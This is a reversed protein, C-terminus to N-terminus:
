LVGLCTFGAWEQLPHGQDILERQVHAVAQASRVGALYQDYFRSTFEAAARDLVRWLNGIVTNAGAILCTTPLDVQEEGEYVFSSLSNCASLTVLNPLPSLDRLQDLWVDRDWFTLGSLRGTLPHSFFHSAIHMWGFHSLGGASQHLALLNKWSADEEALQRSESGLKSALIGLENRVYPLEPRRGGFTSLGVLLGNRRM